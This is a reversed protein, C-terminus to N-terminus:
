LLLLSFIGKGIMLLGLYFYEEYVIGFYTLFLLFGALLDLWGMVDFKFNKEWSTFVSFLGKGVALASVPIFFLSYQEVSLILSLGVLGDIVGLILTLMSKNKM